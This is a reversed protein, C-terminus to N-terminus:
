GRNFSSAQTSNVISSTMIPFDISKSSPTNVYYIMPQVAIMMGGGPTEYSAFSDPIARNPKSPSILGGAQKGQVRGGGRVNRNPILSPQSVQPRNVSTNVSGGRGGRTPRSTQPIQPQQLTDSPPVIKDFAAYFRDAAVPKDNGNLYFERNPRGSVAVVRGIGPVVLPPVGVKLNAVANGLQRKDRFTTTIRQSEQPSQPKTGTNERAQNYRKREEPTWSKPRWKGNEIVGEKGNQVALKYVSSPKINGFRFLSDAKSNLSQWNTNTKGDPGDYEFHLHSGTSGGTNGVTGIVSGSRVTEGVQVMRRDLHAYVSKSGDSHRIEILNGYGSTLSGNVESRTVVGDKMISIPTGIDMPYDNGSHMRYGGTIPHLRMGARSGIKTSPLIGGTFSTGISESARVDADIKGIEGTLRVNRSQQFNHRGVTVERTGFPNSGRSQPNSFGVSRVVYDADVDNLGSKILEEKLKEPNSGGMRIADALAAKGSSSSTSQFRGDRYPSFQNGRGKGGAFLIDRITVEDRTKGQINFAGPSAKGSKILRYRNLIVALVAAKGLANEGGAEAAVMRGLADVDEPSFEGISISEISGGGGYGDGPGASPQGGGAGEEEKKGKLMLEKEISQIAENVKQGITTELVKALVDSNNMSSGTDRLERTPVTGGDAFGRIQYMLSTMSKDVRQNALGEVLYSIGSSISQYIKKDPRQGLAVDVAAGMLGGVLPIDKLIKATTTLAKYPNPEKSKKFLDQQMIFSGAPRDGMADTSSAWDKWNSFYRPSKDPYLRQIKDKGGVNKGPQSKPPTIKIPRKRSPKYTRRSSTRVPKGGRTNTGGGQYKRVVRGGKAFGLLKDPVKAMRLLDRILLVVDIATSITGTVAAVAGLVAAGPLAIGTAAAGLGAAGVAFTFADLGAGLGALFSGLKDGSEARAKADLYGVAAGFGPIATSAFKSFPKALKGTFKGFKEQIGGTIRQWWPKPKGGRGQTVRPKGKPKQGGRGQTVEVKGRPVPPKGGPKPKEEPKGGTRKKFEDVAAFGIEAGLLGAVISANAFLNFQKELNNFEKQYDGGPGTKLEAIFGLTKDKLDGGFKVLTTFGDLLKGFLNEAFSYVTGITKLVGELKPLFELIAPLFRGLATFFIFRKLREPLSITPLEPFKPFNFGKPKKTELKEEAKQFDKQEDEKRKVEKKRQSVLLESGLFKEIKVLKGGIDNLNEESSQKVIASSKRELKIPKISSSLITKKNKLAISPKQYPVIASSKSSPLLKSSDVKNTM